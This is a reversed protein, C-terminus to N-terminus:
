LYKHGEINANESGPNTKHNNQWSYDLMTTAQPSENQKCNGLSTHELNLSTWVLPIRSTPHISEM